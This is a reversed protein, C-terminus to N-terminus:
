FLSDARWHLQWGATVSGLGDIGPNSTLGRAVDIAFSGTLSCWASEPRISTWAAFQRGTRSSRLVSFGHPDCSNREAAGFRDVRLGMRLIAGSATAAEALPGCNTNRQIVGSIRATGAELAASWKSGLPVALAGTVSASVNSNDGTSGRIMIEGGGAVSRDSLGGWWPALRASAGIQAAEHGTSAISHREAFLRLSGWNRKGRGPLFRIAVGDTERYRTAHIVVPNGSVSRGRRATHFPYVNRYLSAMLRIQPRDHQLTFSFDPDGYATRIRM